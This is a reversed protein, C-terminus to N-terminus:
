RRGRAQDQRRRVAQRRDDGSGQGPGPHDLRRGDEDRRDPRGPPADAQGAEAQCHRRLVRRARFAPSRGAPRRDASVLTEHAPFTCPVRRPPAPPFMGSDLRLFCGLLVRDGRGAVPRLRPRALVATRAAPARRGPLGTRGDLRALSELDRGDVVGERGVQEDAALGALEVREAVANREAADLRRRDLAPDLLEIGVRESDHAGARPQRAAGPPRSPDAGVGVSVDVHDETAPGVPQRGIQLHKRGMPQRDRLRVVGEHDEVATLEDGLVAVRRRAHLGRRERDEIGLRQHRDCGGQRQRLRRDGAEDHSPSNTIAIPVLM